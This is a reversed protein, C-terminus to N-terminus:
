GKQKEGNTDSVPKGLHSFSLVLVLVRGKRADLICRKPLFDLNCSLIHTCSHYRIPKLHFTRHTPRVMEKRKSVKNKTQVEGKGKRPQITPHNSPDISIQPSKKKKFAVKSDEARSTFIFLFLGHTTHGRNRKDFQRPGMM